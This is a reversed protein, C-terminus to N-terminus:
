RNEQCFGGRKEEGKRFQVIVMCNCGDETPAVPTTRIVAELQRVARGGGPCRGNIRKV